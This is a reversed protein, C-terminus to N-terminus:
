FIGLPTGNFGYDPRDATLENFDKLGSLSSESLDLLMEFRVFFPSVFGYSSFYLSILLM